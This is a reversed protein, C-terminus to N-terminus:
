KKEADGEKKESIERAKVLFIEDNKKEILGKKLFEGFWGSMSAGLGAEKTKEEVLLMNIKGSEKDTNALITEALKIQKKPIAKKSSILDKKLAEEIKFIPAVTKKTLEPNEEKKIEEQKPLEDTEKPQMKFFDIEKRLSENESQIKKLAEVVIKKDAKIKELDNELADKKEVLSVQNKELEKNQRIAEELKEKLAKNEEAQLALKKEIEKLDTETKVSQDKRDDTFSVVIKEKQFVKLKEQFSKFEFFLKMIDNGGNSKDNEM